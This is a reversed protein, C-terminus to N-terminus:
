FRPLKERLEMPLGLMEFLQHIAIRADQRYLEVTPETDYCYDAVLRLEYGRTQQWIRSLTHYLVSAWRMHYSSTVLTLSRVGNEELIAFTNLANELTTMAQDDAHIRQPDIGCKNTLYDRILGAETNKQPNAKGTAGGSCVLLTRPFARAAAAAALCRGVLEPQMGGNELEYGLIVFAHDPSDPIGADALETATDEGRHFHLRYEGGEGLYVLRWYGALDRALPADQPSLRDIAALAEDIRASDDPAPAEYASLLRVLLDTFAEAGEPSVRFSEAPAGSVLLVLVLFLLPFIRKM